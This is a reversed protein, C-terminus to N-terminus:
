HDTPVSPSSNETLTLHFRVPLIPVTNKRRPFVRFIASTIAPPTKLWPHCSDCSHPHLHSPPNSTRFVRFTTPQRNDTTPPSPHLASPQHLRTFGCVPTLAFIKKGRFFVSLRTLYPTPPLPLYCLHRPPPNFWSLCSLCSFPSTTPPSLCDTKLKRNETTLPHHATHHNHNCSPPAPSLICHTSSPNFPIHPPPM